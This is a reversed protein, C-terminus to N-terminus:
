SNDSMDMYLKEHVQRTFGASKYYDILSKRLPLICIQKINPYNEKLKSIITSIEEKFIGGGCPKEPNSLLYEIEIEPLISSKRVLVLMCANNDITLIYAELKSIDMKIYRKIKCWDGYETSGDMNEWEDLFLLCESQSILNLQSDRISTM